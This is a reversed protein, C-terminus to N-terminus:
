CNTLEAAHGKREDNSAKEMEPSGPGRRCKYMLASVSRLRHEIRQDFRISKYGCFFDHFATTLQTKSKRSFDNTPGSRTSRSRLGAGFVGGTPNSAATREARWRTAEEDTIISRAGLKMVRPAIGQKKLAYFHAVSFGHTKCFNPISYGFRKAPFSDM